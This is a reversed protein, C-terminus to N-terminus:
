ARPPARAQRSSWAFLPRPARLFLSPQVQSLGARLLLPAGVPAPAWAQQQVLCMPCHEGLMVTKGEGPNGSVDAECILGWPAAEAQWAHALRSVTPSLVALVLMALAIRSVLAHRWTFRKM